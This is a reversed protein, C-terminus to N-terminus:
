VLWPVRDRTHQICLYFCGLEWVAINYCRQQINAAAGSCSRDYWILQQPQLVTGINTSNSACAIDKARVLLCCHLLLIEMWNRCLAKVALSLLQVIRRPSLAAVTQARWVSAARPTLGLAAAAPPSTQWQHEQQRRWLTGSGSALAPRQQFNATPTLRIPPM